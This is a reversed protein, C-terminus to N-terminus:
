GRTVMMRSEIEMFKLKKLAKVPCHSCPIYKPKAIVLLAEFSNRTNIKRHVHTHFEGSYISGLFSIAPKFFIHIKTTISCM